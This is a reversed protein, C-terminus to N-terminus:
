NSPWNVVTTPCWRDMRRAIRDQTTEGSYDRPQVPQSFQAREDLADINITSWTGEDSILIMALYVGCTRCIIAESTRLEFAYGQISNPDRAILQVSSKPDSFARINHKRCFSCQCAGLIQEEPPRSSTLEIEIAGCHCSGKHKHM